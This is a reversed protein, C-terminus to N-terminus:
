KGIPLMVSASGSYLPSVGNWKEVMKLEILKPNKELAEGVIRTAEAQGRAAIVQTEADVMAQERRFKAKKAEQEQVMKSEIAKELDKSLDINEINIDEVVLLTGVKKRLVELALIKIQEREKVIQEATKQATVEKLAEQARPVILKDFPEGAYDRLITVTSAEPIRWLVKLMVDVQQLDSSFCPAKLERTDQRVSLTWVSTIFPMKMGFGPALVQESMKGLTVKVGREGPKVTFWGGFFIGLALAVACVTSALIGFAAIGGMEKDETQNQQDESEIKM